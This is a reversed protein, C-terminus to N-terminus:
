QTVAAPEELQKMVPDLWDLDAPGYQTWGKLIEKLKRVEAKELAIEADPMAKMAELDLIAQGNGIDRMVTERDEDPVSVKKFLDGLVHLDSVGVKQQGVIGAINLRARVSMTIM